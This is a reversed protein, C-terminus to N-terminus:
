NRMLNNFGFDYASFTSQIPRGEAIEPTQDLLIVEESSRLRNLSSETGQILLTDSSQLRVKDMRM